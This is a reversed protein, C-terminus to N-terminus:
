EGSRDDRAQALAAAMAVSLVGHKEMFELIECAIAPIPVFTGM